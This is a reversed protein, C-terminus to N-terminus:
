PWNALTARQVPSGSRLQSRGQSVSNRAITSQTVPNRVSEDTEHSQRDRELKPSQAHIQHHCNMCTQTPPIAAHDAYEVTNHCYRCDIGLEGAHLQHDYAVPQRPMYGVDTAEPSFGFAVLYIMYPPAVLAAVILTPLLLISWRPFVYQYRGM